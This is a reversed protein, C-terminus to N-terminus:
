LKYALLKTLDNKQGSNTEVRFNTEPVTSMEKRQLIHSQSLKSVLEHPLPSNIKHSTLVRSPSNTETGHNSLHSHIKSDSNSKRASEMDTHNMNSHGSPSQHLHVSNQQSSYTERHLEQHNSKDNPNKHGHHSGHDHGHNGQNNHHGHMVNYHQHDDVNGHRTNPHMESHNHHETDSHENDDHSSGHHHDGHGHDGDGHDDHGHEEHGHSYLKEDNDFEKKLHYIHKKRMHYDRIFLPKFVFEDLYLFARPRDINLEWQNKLIKKKVVSLDDLKTMIDDTELHETIVTYKMILYNLPCGFILTLVVSLQM